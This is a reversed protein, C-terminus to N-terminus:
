IWPLWGSSTNFKIDKLFDFNGEVVNYLTDGIIILDNNYVGITQGNIEIKYKFDGITYQTFDKVKIYKVKNLNEIFTKIDEQKVNASLDEYNKVVIKNTDEKENFQIVDGETINKLVALDNSSLVCINSVENEKDEYLVSGDDYVSLKKNNALLIVFTPDLEGSEKRTDKYYKVSLLLNKVYHNSTLNITLSNYELIITELDKESYERSIEELKQGFNISKIFDFDGKVKECFKYFGNTNIVFNSDDIILISYNDKLKVIYAFETIDIKSKTEKEIYEINKLSNVFSNIENTEKIIYNIYDSEFLITSEKYVSIESVEFDINLKKNNDNSNGCGILLLSFLLMIILIFKRNM